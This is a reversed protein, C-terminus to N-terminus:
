CDRRCRLGEPPIIRIAGPPLLDVAQRSSGDIALGPEAKLLRDKSGPERLGSSPDLWQESPSPVRGASRAGELNRRQGPSLILAGLAHPAAANPQIAPLAGATQALAACTGLAALSCVAGQVAFTAWCRVGAFPKM